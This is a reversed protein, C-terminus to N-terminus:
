RDASIITRNRGQHKAKYLARDAAESLSKVTLAHEPYTAIGISVTIPELVQGANKIIIRTIAKRLEEAREFAITAPTEPLIIAFEEGGMRCATDTERIHNKMLNSVEQLVSDGLEHGYTDNFLKFYDIDIILLSLLSQKREAKLLEMQMSEDFYRRNHLNTLPDSISQRQLKERLRINSLSLAIHDSFSLALRKLAPLHLNVSEDSYYLTILGILDGQATLPICLHGSILANEYHYCCIDDSAHNVTYAQSRRLGWCDEKRIIDTNINLSGWRVTLELHGFEPTTLYLAGPMLPFFKEAFKEIPTLAETITLCSQLIGNMINLDETISTHAELEKFRNELETHDTKLEEEYRKRITVDEIQAVFFSEDRAAAVFLTMTSITQIIEGTKTLLPSEIIFNKMGIETLKVFPLANELRLNEPLIKKLNMGRLEYEHYGLMICLAQNVQTIKNKIDLVMMGIPAHDFSNRFVKESQSLRHQFLKQETIDRIIAIYLQRHRITLDKFKIQAEFVTSDSRIGKIEVGTSPSSSVFKAIDPIELDFLTSLSLSRAANSDYKFTQLATLNMSEIKGNNLFVIICEGINDMITRIRYESEMVMRASEVADKEASISRRFLPLIHWNLIRIFFFIFLIIIPLAIYLRTLLVSEIESVNIRVLFRLGLNSLDEVISVTKTGGQISTPFVSGVPTNADFLDPNVNKGKSGEEDSFPICQSPTGNNHTCLYREESFSFKDNKTITQNIGELPKQLELLAIPQGNAVIPMKFQIYWKKNHILKTDIQAKIALAKHDSDIFIGHSSLVKHEFTIIKFANFNQSKRLLDFDQNIKNELSVRGELTLSSDIAALARLTEDIENSITQNLVVSKLAIYKELSTKLFFENQSALLTAGFFVASMIAQTLMSVSFFRIQRDEEGTQGSNSQRVDGWSIIMGINILALAISYTLPMSFQNLWTYILTFEHFSLIIGLIAFFLLIFNITELYSLQRNNIEQTSKFLLGGAIVWMLHSQLYKPKHFYSYFEGAPLLYTYLSFNSATLICSLLSIGIVILASAQTFKLSLLTQKSGKVCFFVGSFIVSLLPIFGLPNQNTFLTLLSKNSLIWGAGVILGMLILTLGIVIYINRSKFFQM